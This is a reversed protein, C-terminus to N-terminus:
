NSRENNLRRTYEDIFRICDERSDFIRNGGLATSYELVLNWKNSRRFQMISFTYCNKKITERNEFMM